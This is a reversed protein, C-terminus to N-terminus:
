IRRGGSEEDETWLEAYFGKRSPAGGLHTAYLEAYIEDGDNGCKIVSIGFSNLQNNKSPQTGNFLDIQVEWDSGYPGRRTIMPRFTYEESSSPTSVTYELHQNQEKLVGNGRVYDPGWFTKDKINDNFDDSVDGGSVMTDKGANSSGNDIGDNLGPGPRFIIETQAYPMTPILFVILGFFVFLVKKM